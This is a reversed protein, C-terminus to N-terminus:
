PAVVKHNQRIAAVAIPVRGAEDADMLKIHCQTPDINMEKALRQYAQNRDMIRSPGKRWMADLAKHAANRARHTEADVLPFRDWSWLGCCSSRLGYRTQTEYSQKGCEPCIPRPKKNAEEQYHNGM